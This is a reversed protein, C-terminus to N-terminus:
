EDTGNLSVRQTQGAFEVDLAVDSAAPEVTAEFGVMAQDRSGPDLPENGAVVDFCVPPFEIGDVVLEYSFPEHYFVDSTENTSSVALLIQWLSEQRQQGDSVEVVWAGDPGDVQVRPTGTVGIPSWEPPAPTPCGTLSSDDDTGDGDRLLVFTVVAAALLVGAIGALVPWRRRRTRPQEGRLARVLGDVDQHWTADRLAVAQRQALPALETPLAAVHPMEAGGVLVPIVRGGRELAAGLEARVYDDPEDLRRTGEPGTVTVWTPGIVALTADADGVARNIAEMFDEGPDVAVVDQFINRAGFRDALVDRLRGAWASSDERRYSLFIRMTVEAVDPWGAVL